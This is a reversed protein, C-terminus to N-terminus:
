AKVSSKTDVVSVENASDKTVAGILGVVLLGVTIIAEIQQPSLAIGAATLISVIGRWTSPESLRALIYQMM